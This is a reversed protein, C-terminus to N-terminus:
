TPLRERVRLAEGVNQLVLHERALEGADCRLVGEHCERWSVGGVQILKPHSCSSGTALAHVGEVMRPPLNDISTPDLVGVELTEDLVHNHGPLLLDRLQIRVTLPM